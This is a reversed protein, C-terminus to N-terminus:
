HGSSKPKFGRSAKAVFTDEYGEVQHRSAKFKLAADEVFAKAGRFMNPILNILASVIAKAKAVYGEPRAEKLDNLEKQIKKIERELSKDGTVTILEKFAQLLNSCNQSFKRPDISYKRAPSDITNRALKELKELTYKLQTECSELPAYEEASIADKGKRVQDFTKVADRFAKIEEDIEVRRAPSLARAIAKFRDLDYRNKMDDDNRSMYISGINYYSSLIISLRYDLFIGHAHAHAHAHASVSAYCLRSPWSFDTKLAYESSFAQVSEKSLGQNFVGGM